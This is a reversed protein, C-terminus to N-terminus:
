LLRRVLKLSLPPVKKAENFKSSKGNRLWNVLSLTVYRRPFGQISTFSLLTSIPLFITM